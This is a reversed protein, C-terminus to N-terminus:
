GVITSLDVGEEGVEVELPFSSSTDQLTIQYFNGDGVATGTQGTGATATVPNDKGFYWYRGNADLVILAVENVALAAIEIRKATEMRTFQLVIDTSVYNVGNAADVNLTSTFSGTNRKFYYEKFKKSEGLTIANIVGESETVGTVDDWNIIYARVIGGMSTACDNALGSLTQNCAM